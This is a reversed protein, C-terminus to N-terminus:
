LDNYCDNKVENTLRRCLEDKVDQESWTDKDSFIKHSFRFSPVPLFIHETQYLLTLYAINAPLNKADLM